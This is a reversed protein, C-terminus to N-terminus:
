SDQGGEDMVRKLGDLDKTMQKDLMPGVVREALGFIGALEVEGSLTLQTGGDKPRSTMTMVFELPGSASKYGLVSPPDWVTVEITGDMERGLFKDVNRITSGVGHPPDSLWESAVASDRWLPDNAPNSVYEFVEQQSRNLWVQSEFAYM